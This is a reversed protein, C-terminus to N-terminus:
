QLAFPVVVWRGNVLKSLQDYDWRIPGAAYLPGAIEMQAAKHRQQEPSLNDHFILKMRRLKSYSARVASESEMAFTVVFRQRTDVPVSAAPVSPGTRAQQPVMVLGLAAMAQVAEPSEEENERPVARSRRPPLLVATCPVNTQSTLLAAVLAATAGAPSSTPLQM